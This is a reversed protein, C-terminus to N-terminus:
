DFLGFGMDEDSEEKEEKEEEKAEAAAAPAAGGAAPAGGVAAGGSPVSALKGTGEVILANIDKGKLESLLTNVREEDVEIGVAEIVKSIDRASPSDNGAIKLLLYAAIYRM